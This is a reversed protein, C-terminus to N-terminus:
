AVRPHVARLPAHSWAFWHHRSTEDETQERDDSRLDCAVGSLWRLILTQSQELEAVALPRPKASGDILDHQLVIEARREISSTQAGSIEDAVGVGLRETSGVVVDGRRDDRRRWEIQAPVPQKDIVRREVAEHLIAADIGEPVGVDIKMELFIKLVFVYEERAIGILREVRHRAECASPLHPRARRM